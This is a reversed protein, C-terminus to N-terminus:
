KCSQGITKGSEEIEQSLFFVVNTGFDGDVSRFTTELDKCPGGSQVLVYPGSAISNGYLASSKVFHSKIEVGSCPTFFIPANIEVSAMASKDLNWFIAGGGGLPASSHSFTTCYFKANLCHLFM